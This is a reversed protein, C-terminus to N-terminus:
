ESIDVWMVPKLSFTDDTADYGYNMVTKDPYVFSMTDKSAGPTRLWWCTETDHLIDHYREAEDSSLLYVRDATDQGADTNYVPNADATVTATMLANIEEKCFNENLFDNNLWRRAHSDEWNVPKNQEQFPIGSISKDKILLAQSGENTLVRWELNAFMVIDGPDTQRINEKELAVLHEGSDKYDERALSYFNSYVTDLTEEDTSDSAALAAQYRQEQYDAYADADESRDYVIRYCRWATDHDGILSLAAGAFRYFATTRSFALIAAIVAIFIISVFLSHRKMEAAKKEAMEGCAISQQESDACKLLREYLEPTIRREPIKHRLEHHHIRDFVTQASYYDNPTRARDRIQCAEEYLAIKGEARAAYKKKRLERLLPRVKIYPRALRLYKIARHYYKDQDEYQKMHEAINIYRLATDYNQQALEEATLNEDSTESQLQIDIKEDNRM